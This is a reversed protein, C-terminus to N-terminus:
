DIRMYDALDIVADAMSWAEPNHSIFFKRQYGGSKLAARDMRYFQEKRDATLGDESEDAFVCEYNHDAAEQHYIGVADTLAKDLWVSEGGSKKLVSSELGTEGDIVSIDFCEVLKGNAQERQSVISISFRPGYTDALLKNATASITPGADEISLDIVGQLAIALLNWASVEDEIRKAKASLESSADVEQQLSQVRSEAAAIGNNASDLARAATSASEEASSTAAQAAKMRSDRDPKPIADLEAKAKTITKSWTAKIELSEKEAAILEQGIERAMAEAMLAQDIKKANLDCLDINASELSIQAQELGSMKAALIQRTEIDDRKTEIKANISILDVGVTETKTLNTELTQLKSKVIKWQDRAYQLDNDASPIIDVAAKAEKLAPCESYPGEGHCPVIDVFGARTRLEACISALRKGDNEHQHLSRQEAKRDGLRTKRDLELSLMRSSEKIMPALELEMTNMETAAHEIDNKQRLLVLADKRRCDAKDIFGSLEQDATEARTAQDIIRQDITKIRAWVKDRSLTWELQAQEIREQAQKRRVRLEKDDASKLAADDMVKKALSLDIGAQTKIEILEALSTTLRETEDILVQIERKKDETREFEERVHEYERKLERAVTRASERLQQPEDLALLDRMLSKPDDYEALKPSAQARFAALYYLSRSGLV